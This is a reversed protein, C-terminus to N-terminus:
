NNAANLKRTPPALSAHATGLSFLVLLSPNNSRLRENVLGCWCPRPNELLPRIGATHGTANIQPNRHSVKGQQDAVQALPGLPKEPNIAADGMAFVGEVGPVRLRGDIKIRGREKELGEMSSVLETPALGTSWVQSGVSVGHM